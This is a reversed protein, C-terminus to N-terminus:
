TWCPWPTSPPATAAGTWCCRGPPCFLTLGTLVGMTSGGTLFQCHDFGFAEAWLAQASDFPEGAEYLNGTGPIETVDLPALPALEPIPLWRGKHGPMHFRATRRAAYDKLADYLPTSM